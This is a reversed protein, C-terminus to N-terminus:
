PENIGEGARRALEGEDGIVGRGEQISLYRQVSRM